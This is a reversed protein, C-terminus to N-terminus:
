EHCVNLVSWTVTLPFALPMADLKRRTEVRWAAMQEDHWARCGDIVDAIDDDLDANDRLLMGTEFERMKDDAIRALHDLLADITAFTM